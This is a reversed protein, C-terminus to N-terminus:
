GVIGWVVVVLWWNQPLTWWYHDVLSTVIIVAWLPWFFKQERIKKIVLGSAALAGVIGLESLWLLPIAHVPQLWFIGNRARFDPLKILFNQMGVGLIPSQRWMMIAARMLDIRKQMGESDWGGLIGRGLIWGGIAMILLLLGIQIKKNTFRLDYLMLGGTLLWVIRSGSLLIGVFALLTVLWYWWDHKKYLWQWLWWGVLLFGAMSNPHSFSGYARLVEQGGVTMMAIGPTTISFSREGLWYFVGQISGHHLVQGLGLGTEIVIWLPVIVKLYKKVKQSKWGLYNWWGGRRGM